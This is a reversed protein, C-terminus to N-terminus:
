FLEDDLDPYGSDDEEESEDKMTDQKKSDDKEDKGSASERSLENAGPDSTAANEGSVDNDQSVM